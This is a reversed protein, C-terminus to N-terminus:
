AIEIDFDKYPAEREIEGIEIDFRRQWRLLELLFNLYRREDEGAEKEQLREQILSLERARIKHARLGGADIRNLAWIHVTRNSDAWVLMQGDPCLAISTIDHTHKAFVKIARGDPLECVRIRRDRGASVFFDGRPSILLQTIAEEHGYFSDLLQRNLLSWLKISCDESGSLLFQGDPSVALCTVDASHGQLTHVLAGNSVNWIRIALDSDGSIIYRNKPSLVLCLSQHRHQRIMQLCTRSDVEWFRITRDAGSSLLFRGGASYCLCNVPAPHAHLMYGQMGGGASWLYVVGDEDGSALRMNKSDISLCRINSRHGQLTNLSMRHRYACRIQGGTKISALRRLRELKVDDPLAWLHLTDESYAYAIIDGGITFSFDRILDAYGPLVALRPVFWGVTTKPATSPMHASLRRFLEDESEQEPRWGAEQLIAIIYMGWHAPSSQLLSWLDAWREHQQWFGIITSWDSHTMSDTSIEGNVFLALIDARGGQRVCAVLREQLAEDAAKYATRLFRHTFDFSEYQEWQGTLIYFIARQYRNGPVYGKSLVFERALPHNHDIVLKCLEDRADANPQAAMKQLVDLVQSPGYGIDNWGAEDRLLWRALTRAFAAHLSSDSPIYQKDLVLKCALPHEHQILLRCFADRAEPKGAEALELLTKEALRFHRHEDPVTLVDALAGIAKKSGDKVLAHVAM